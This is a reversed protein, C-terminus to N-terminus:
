QAKKNRNPFVRQVILLITTTLSAIATGLATPVAGVVIAVLCVTALTAILALGVWLVVQHQLERDPEHDPEIRHLQADTVEVAENVPRAAPRSDNTAHTPRQPPRKQPKLPDTKDSAPV